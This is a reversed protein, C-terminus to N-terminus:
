TVKEEVFEYLIKSNAIPTDFTIDRVEIRTRGVSIIVNGVVSLVPTRAFVRIRNGPLITYKVSDTFTHSRTWEISYKTEVETKISESLAFSTKNAISFAQKTGQEDRAVLERAIPSQTRNIGGLESVERRVSLGETVKPSTAEFRCKARSGEFCADRVLAAGREGQDAGISVVTGPRDYLELTEENFQIKDQASCAGGGGTSCAM